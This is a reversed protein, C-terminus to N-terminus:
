SSNSKKSMRVGYRAFLKERELIRKKLACIEECLKEVYAEDFLSRSAANPLGRQSYIDPANALLEDDTEKDSKTGNHRTSIDSDGDTIGAGVQTTKPAEISM